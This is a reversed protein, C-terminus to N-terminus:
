ESLYHYTQYLFDQVVQSKYFGAFLAPIIVMDVAAPSRRDVIYGVGGRKTQGVM